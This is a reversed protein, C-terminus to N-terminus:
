CKKTQKLLWEKIKNIRVIHFYNVNINLKYLLDSAIVKLEYNEDDLEVDERNQTIENEECFKNFVELDEWNELTRIVTEYDIDTENDSVITESETQKFFKRLLNKLKSM